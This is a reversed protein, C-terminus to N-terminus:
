NWEILQVFAGEVIHAHLQMPITQLNWPHPSLVSGFARSFVFGLIQYISHNNHIFYFEKVRKEKLNVPLLTTYIAFRKIFQCEIVFSFLNIYITKM